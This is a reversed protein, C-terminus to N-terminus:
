ERQLAYISAGGQRPTAGIGGPAVRPTAGIIQRPTSLGIQKRRDKLIIFSREETRKKLM